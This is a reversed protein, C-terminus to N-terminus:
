YHYVTSIISGVNNDIMSINQLAPINSPSINTQILEVRITYFTKNSISISTLYLNNNDTEPIRWNSNTTMRSIFRIHNTPVAGNANGGQIEIIQSSTNNYDTEDYLFCHVKAYFSNNGFLLTITPTVITNSSPTGTWSYYKTVPMSGFIMSGNV